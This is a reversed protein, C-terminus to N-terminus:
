VRLNSDGAKREVAALWERLADQAVAVDEGYVIRDHQDITDIFGQLDDLYGTISPQSM